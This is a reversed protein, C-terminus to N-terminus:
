TMCLAVTVDRWTVVLHQKSPALEHGEKHMIGGKGEVRKM